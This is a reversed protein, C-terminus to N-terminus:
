IRLLNKGLEFFMIFISLNRTNNRVSSLANIYRSRDIVILQCNQLKEVMILSLHLTKNGEPIFASIGYSSWTPLQDLPADERSARDNVVGAHLRVEMEIDRIM